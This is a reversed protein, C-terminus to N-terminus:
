QSHSGFASFYDEFGRGQGQGRLGQGQGGLDQRRLERASFCQSRLQVYYKGEQGQDLGDVASSWGAHVTNQMCQTYMYSAFIYAEFTHKKPMSRHPWNTRPRLPEPRPRSPGPRPPAPRPRAHQPRAKVVTLTQGFTVVLILVNHTKGGFFSGLAFCLDWAEIMLM